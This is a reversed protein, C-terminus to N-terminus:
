CWNGIRQTTGLLPALCVMFVFVLHVSQKERAVLPPGYEPCLVVM